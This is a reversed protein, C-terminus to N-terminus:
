HFKKRSIIEYYKEIKSKIKYLLRRLYKNYEKKREPLHIVADKYEKSRKDPAINIIREYKSIEDEIDRFRRRKTEIIPVNRLFEKFFNFVDKDDKVFYAKSLERYGLIHHTNALMELYTVFEQDEHWNKLNYENEGDKGYRFIIEPENESYINQNKKILDFDRHIFASIASAISTKGAGNEGFIVASKGELLM